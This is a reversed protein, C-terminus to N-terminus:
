ANSFSTAVWELTRARLVGPVPSGPPSGDIPNYLTPCSQLSKAAAAAIRRFWSCLIDKWGKRDDEIEKMLTKCSKSYLYKIRNVCSFIPNNGKVKREQLKSNTYLFTVSKFCIVNTDQFKVSNISASQYTKTAHKSNKMYLIMVNLSIEIEEKEIQIGKIEKEERVAVALVELVIKFLLPM